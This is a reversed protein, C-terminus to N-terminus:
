NIARALRLIIRKPRIEATATFRELVRAEPKERGPVEVYQVIRAMFAGGPLSQYHEAPLHYSSGARPAAGDFHERNIDYVRLSPTSETSMWFLFFWGNYVKRFWNKSIKIDM